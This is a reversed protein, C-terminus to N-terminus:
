LLWLLLATRVMQVVANSARDTRDGLRPKELTDITSKVLAV